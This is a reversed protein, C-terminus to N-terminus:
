NLSLKDRIFLDLNNRIDEDTELGEEGRPIHHLVLVLPSIRRQTLTAVISVFFFFFFTTKNQNLVKNVFQPPCCDCWDHKNFSYHMVRIVNWKGTM